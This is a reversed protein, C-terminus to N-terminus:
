AIVCPLTPPRAATLFYPEYGLEAILRLEHEVLRHVKEPAGQPWRTRMGAETLRRLHSAPTEGAPVLEHPYEYRLADLSFRCREAIRVTESLLAPPYLRALEDHRRLHREGNPHLYHGAKSVTTGLRIATLADQLHRRARAHMHVDGAATLPVGTDQALQRLQKLRARDDPGHLLEVALWARHPFARALWRAAAPDPEADPILLALCDPVGSALDARTVHYAGKTARRRAQTILASLNGYGERSTALLVVRPGDALALETGIILHLGHDHAAMHARVAGALSCEDTLALARYGLAAARAVLEEPHSAGRLFTFNSLAHLEAYSPLAAM